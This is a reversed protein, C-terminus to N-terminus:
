STSHVVEKYMRLLEKYKKEYKMFVDKILNYNCIDDILIKNYKQFIYSLLSKNINLETTLPIKFNYKKKNYKLKVNKYEIFKHIFNNTDEYTLVFNPTIIVYHNNINHSLAEKITNFYNFTKDNRLLYSVKFLLNNSM